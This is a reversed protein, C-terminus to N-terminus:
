FSRTMITDFFSEFLSFGDENGFRELVERAKRSYERAKRYSYDIGDSEKVLEELKEVADGGSFLNRVDASPFSELAHIVPLTFRESNVGSFRPKGMVKTDGVFDLTDDIIQFAMGISEGLERALEREKEGVGSYVASLEGSAAFLSATKNGIIGLYTREDILEDTDNALSESIEGEIMRDVASFIIEVSESDFSSHAVNLAKVFIYDGFLVSTKDSFRANLTAEGRRLASDDVVDDHILSAVHIAEVVMAPTRLINWPKGFLEGVLAMFVPRVVKGPQSFIQRLIGDIVPESAIIRDKIDQYV